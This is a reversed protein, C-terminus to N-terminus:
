GLIKSLQCILAEQFMEWIKNRYIEDQCHMGALDYYRMAQVYQGRNLCTNGSFFFFRSRLWKRNM